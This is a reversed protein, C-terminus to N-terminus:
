TLKFLDYKEDLRAIFKINFTKYFVSLPTFIVNAVFVIAAIVPLGALALIVFFIARVPTPIIKYLFGLALGVIIMPSLFTILVLFSAVTSIISIAVALGVKLFIYKVTTLFSSFVLGAAPSVANPLSIRNKYMVLSIYDELFFSILGGIVLLAMISLIHPLVAVVIAGLPATRTGSFVGFGALIDYGLKVPIAIVLLMLVTVLLTWGFYSNGLRVNRVFPGKISADNNAIAEIFVFLFVSRLWWMLLVLLVTLVGLVILLPKYKNFVEKTIFTAPAAGATTAAAGGVPLSLATQTARDKKAPGHPTNNFRLSLGGQLEFALMTIIFLVIWKKFSFPRFFMTKAWEVSVSFTEGLNVNTM